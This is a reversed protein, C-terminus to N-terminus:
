GVKYLKQGQAKNITMAFAIRIPFKLRTFLFPLTSDSSTLDIRSLLILQGTGQGTSICGINNPL